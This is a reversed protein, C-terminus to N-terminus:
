SAVIAAVVDPLAKVSTRRSNPYSADHFSRHYAFRSASQRGICGTAPLADFANLLLLDILLLDILLPV